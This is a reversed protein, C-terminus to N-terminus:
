LFGLYSNEWTNRNKDSINQWLVRHKELLLKEIKSLENDALAIEFLKEPSAIRDFERVFSV